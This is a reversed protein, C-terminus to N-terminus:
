IRLGPLTEEFDQSFDLMSLYVCNNPFTEHLQRLNAAPDYNSVELTDDGVSQSFLDINDSMWAEVVIPVSFTKLHDLRADGGIVPQTVIFQAGAAIKKGMRMLEVDIPNYHNFAAGTVFKDRYTRNIFGILDSSSAVNFAGGITTPDLRPLSPGGDGRVVLLHRIGQRLAGALINDLEDKTHFTNLNIVVRNPDISLNLLEFAELAGLRLNGMPNDPISVGCGSQMVRNCRQGFRALLKESYGTPSLKPTLLEISYPYDFM